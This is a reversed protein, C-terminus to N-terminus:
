AEWAAQCALQQLKFAMEELCQQLAGANSIKFSWNRGSAEVHMLQASTTEVSFDLRIRGGGIEIDV